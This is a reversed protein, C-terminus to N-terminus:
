EKKAEVFLSKPDFIIGEKVDLEYKPWDPIDSDFPNKISVIQFGSQKLLRILSFRDYMWLHNEGSLRFKGVKAAEGPISDRIGSLVKKIVRKITTRIKTKKDSNKFVVYDNRNKLGVYGIREIVYDDNIIEPQRLYEGMQGGSYNRVVQDYLELMIWDYDAESRKNTNEINEKLLRKYEDIINELDPVVVRMIGNPRLVRYCEKVFENAKEKPIHELVQSHYVVQFYNDPFPIGKLLNVAVVDPSNSKLDLNIWDPHYKKGCGVNLYNIKNM